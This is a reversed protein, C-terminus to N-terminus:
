TIKHKMPYKFVGVRQAQQKGGKQKSINFLKDSLEDGLKNTLEENLRNDAIDQQLSKRIINKIDDSIERKVDNIIERKVDEIYKLESRLANIYNCQESSFLENCDSNSNTNGFIPLLVWYSLLVVLIYYIYTRSM